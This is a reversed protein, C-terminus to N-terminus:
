EHEWGVDQGVHPGADDRAANEAKRKADADRARKWHTGDRSGIEAKVMLLAVSPPLTDLFKLEEAYADLENQTRYGDRDSTWTTGDSAARWTALHEAEHILTALANIFRSNRDEFNTHYSLLESSGVMAGCGRGGQTAHAYMGETDDSYIIDVHTKIYQYYEPSTGKISELLRIMGDEFSFKGRTFIRKKVEATWPAKLDTYIRIGDYETLKWQETDEFERCKEAPARKAPAPLYPAREERVEELTLIKPAPPALSAPAPVPPPPPGPAFLGALTACQAGQQAVPAEKSILEEFSGYELNYAQNSRELRVLVIDGKTVPIPATTSVGIFTTHMAIIKYIAEKSAKAAYAPDCPNPLFSHPSNPGMIRAKFAKRTNTGGTSTSGGDLPMSQNAATWASWDYIERNAVRINEPAKFSISFNIKIM